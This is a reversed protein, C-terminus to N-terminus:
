LSLSWQGTQLRERLHGIKWTKSRWLDYINVGQMMKIPLDQGPPPPCPLHWLLFTRGWFFVQWYLHNLSVIYTIQSPNTCFCFRFYQLSTVKIRHLNCVRCYLEDKYIKVTLEERPTVAVSAGRVTGGGGEM